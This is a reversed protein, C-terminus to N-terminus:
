QARKNFPLGHFRSRRDGPNEIGDNNREKPRGDENSVSSTEIADYIHKLRKGVAFWSYDATAKARGQAGLQRARSRDQLIGLLAQALSKVDGARAYIGLNGLIERNVPNDFVVTPLGMALYSFLKLNAETTSIKPSVAVDALSLYRPLEEHPVKGTFHIWSAVGLAGAKQRYYDENPYGVILFKVTPAERVVLPIAELLLDIGQYETLVGMYIVVQSMM